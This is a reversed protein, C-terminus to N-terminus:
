LDIIKQTNGLIATVMTSITQFKLKWNFMLEAMHQILTVQLIVKKGLPLTLMDLDALINGHIVIGTMLITQFVM